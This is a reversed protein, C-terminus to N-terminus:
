RNYMGVTEGKAIIHGVMASDVQARKAGEELNLVTDLAFIRFYYKHTGSPPCPGQYKLEGFDNTGELADPIKGEEVNTLNPDMNFVIWHTFPVKGADPDDIILVLSKADGPVRDITFPPNVNEDDCTYKFPIQGGKLFAQSAIDITGKNFMKGLGFYYIAAGIAVFILLLSFIKGM